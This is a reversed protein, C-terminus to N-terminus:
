QKQLSLLVLYLCQKQLADGQSHLIGRMLAIPTDFWFFVSLALFFAPFEEPNGGKELRFRPKLIFPINPLERFFKPNPNYLSSVLYRFAKLKVM